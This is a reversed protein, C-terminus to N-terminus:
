RADPSVHRRVVLATAITAVLAGAAAVIVEAPTIAGAVLLWLAFLAAWM